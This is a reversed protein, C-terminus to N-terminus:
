IGKSWGKPSQFTASLLQLIYYKISFIPSIQYQIDVINSISYRIDAIHPNIYRHYTLNHSPLTQFHMDDLGRSVGFDM